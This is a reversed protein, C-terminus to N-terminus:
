ATLKKRMAFLAGLLGTLMLVLSSPEPVPSTEAIFAMDGEGVSGVYNATIVNVGPDLLFTASSMSSDGLAANIDEGDFGCEVCPGSTLGNGASTQGPNQGLATFPSPAAVMEVGNDFFQFQDGTAELDVATLTGSGGLTITWTSGPADISSGFGGGQLPGDFADVFAPGSVPSPVGTGFSASYWQNSVVNDAKAVQSMCFLPIAATLAAGLLRKNRM